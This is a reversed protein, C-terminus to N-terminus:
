AIRICAIGHQRAISELLTQADNESLRMRKSFRTPMDGSGEVWAKFEEGTRGKSHLGNILIDEVCQM